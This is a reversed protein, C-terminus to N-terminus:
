GPGERASSRSGLTRNVITGLGLALGFFVVVGLPVSLFTVPITLIAAAVPVLSAVIAFRRTPDDMPQDQLGRRDAVVLLVVEMTSVCAMFALFFSLAVANYYEGLTAAPFPLLAIFALYVLVATIYRGDMAKLGNTFKHNARWYFAVWFFTFAFAALSPVKELLAAWLESSSGPDAVEPIGIEVAVLTLAIAFVADSFFIVRDFPASGRPYVTAEGRDAEVM